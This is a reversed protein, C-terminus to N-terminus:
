CIVGMLLWALDFRLSSFQKVHELKDDHNAFIYADVIWDLHHLKYIFIRWKTTPLSDFFLLTYQVISDKQSSFFKCSFYVKWVEVGFRYFGFNLLYKVCHVVDKDLEKYTIRPFMVLPRSLPRGKLHRQYRQRVMVVTHLTLVIILAAIFLFFAWVM